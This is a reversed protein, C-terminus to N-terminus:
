ESGKLGHNRVSDANQDNDRAFGQLWSVFVKTAFKARSAHNVALYYEFGDIHSKGLSHHTGAPLRDAALINSCLLLGLGSGVHSLEASAKPDYGTLEGPRSGTYGPQFNLVDWQTTGFLREVMQKDMLQYPISIPANYLERLNVQTSMIMRLKRISVM